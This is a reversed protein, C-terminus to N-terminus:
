QGTAALRVRDLHDIQAVLRRTRRLFDGRYRAEIPAARPLKVKLPDRHVGNVRFEYHLHPGTALGSMGLYGIIEGQRM